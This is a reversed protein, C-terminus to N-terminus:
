DAFTSRSRVWPLLLLWAIRRSLPPSKRLIRPDTCKDGDVGGCYNPCSKTLEGQVEGAERVKAITWCRDNRVPDGFMELFISRLLRETLRIGEERKRQISDAKGLIAVIRAQHELPPLPMGIRALEQTNINFQVASRRTHRLFEHRGGPSTLYHYVYEPLV